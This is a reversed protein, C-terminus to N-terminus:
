RIRGQLAQGGEDGAWRRAGGGCPQQFPGEGAQGELTVQGRQDVGAAAM